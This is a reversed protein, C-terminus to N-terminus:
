ETFTSKKLCVKLKEALVRVNPEERITTHNGPIEHVELGGAALRRWGLRNDEFDKISNMAWFLTIRGPFIKGTPVYNEEAHIIARLTRVLAEDLDTRAELLNAIQPDPSATKDSSVAPRWIRRQLAKAVGKGYTWVGSEQLHGIHCRIRQTVTLVPCNTNLMAVLAVKQGEALLQHAMEFIVLGGFSAGLLYYPGDPQVSRMERIYHAAMDEVRRLPPSQGDLGQAQLAYVPQDEGLHRALPRYILVNAGAAHICFLPPKSGHPQIAVLSSWSGSPQFERMVNALQEVTPSQFLTALPLHIGFRNEIQAFLRAALLSHGGLDFFNDRVGIGNTGLIGSWINVLQIELDDRPALRTKQSDRNVDSPAPLARRDIKGNPTRPLADLIVFAAPVMYEPLSQQLFKRLDGSNPAPSAPVVYAVLQKNGPQDERAVVVSQKVSELQSLVSEIEGLEIRFGRLKVQHDMRGLFEINGDRLYRALDGTKYIRAGPHESFPNPVFREGTLEPRHLYGRAVGEGGIYLEGVVGIPVPQMQSDLIYTQTNAIPRGITIEKSNLSIESATSYITTETPGYQNWLVKSRALLQEALDRSLAEGGCIITLRENGKWGFEILMQWTAPTAQMVTAGSTKMLQILERGDVTAEKSAIVLRASTTLPLCIELTAIDFSLTTVSLLVDDASIRERMATLLNVLASQTLQVGKPKGTSGSTYIVYALNERTTQVVPNNASQRTIDTDRRDLCIIESECQPLRSLLREQTILIPVGADNVIFSLRELPYSIDLPLYAAGAKLVALVAVVMDLSRDLFIGTVVDPGVGREKLYHALQNAKRNLDAYTLCTQEFEVAVANPTHNVQCEFLQQVNKDIEFTAKTNNWEVLIQRQEDQTLLPLEFVRQDPNAVVAQLLQRFHGCIRDMTERDFLDSNYEFRCDLHDPRETFDLTIDLRATGPDFDFEELTLGAIDPMSVPFSKVNLAVQFVPAYSLSRELNLEEVLKEFPLARHSQAELTVNRVHALVERFSPNGSLDTRLPLVGGIPGVLDKLEEGDRNEFRNGVVVEDQGSYRSLLIQFVALLIMGPTANESSALARVRSVTDDNLVLRTVAGRWSQVAPRPRDTPLDIVAPSGHLKTQWYRTQDKLLDCDMSNRQWLAYDAFQIPLPSLKPREENAHAKYCEWLDRFLVEMSTEDSIIRHLTLLLVHDREDLKVLSARLLPGMRVDFPRQAEALAIVRASAEPAGGPAGSVDTVQLPIELREAVLQRPKSDVTAKLEPTTFITRLSEHREVIYGLSQKLLDLDLRGKIRVGRSINQSVDGPNIQDLFWLREQSFTLPIPGHDKRRPIVTATGPQSSSLKAEGDRNPPNGIPTRTNNTPTTSAM